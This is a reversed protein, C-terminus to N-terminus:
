RNIVNVRAGELAHFRTFKGDEHNQLASLTRVMVGLAWTEKQRAGWVPGECRCIMKGSTPWHRRARLIPYVGRKLTMLAKTTGRRTPREPKGKTRSSQRKGERYRLVRTPGCIKFYMSIPQCDCVGQRKWFPVIVHTEPGLETHRIRMHVGWVVESHLSSLGEVLKLSQNRLRM